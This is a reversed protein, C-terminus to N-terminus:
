LRDIECLVVWGGVVYFDIKIEGIHFEEHWKHGVWGVEWLGWM